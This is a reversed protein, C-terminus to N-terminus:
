NGVCGAVSEGLRRYFDLLGERSLPVGAALPDLRVVRTTRGAMLARLQTSQQAEALVCGVEDSDLLRRIRLMGSVSPPLDAADTLAALHALGYRAEFRSYADHEVIYGRRAQGPPFLQHLHQDERHLAAQIRAANARFFEARAPRLGAYVDAIRQAVGQMAVPDMWLHPDAAGDQLTVVVVRDSLTKLAPRLFNELRPGVWFVVQAADLKSRDSPRLQYDHPSLRPDLLADVQVETGGVAMAILQLPKISTLVRLPAEAWSYGTTALMLALAAVRIKDFM